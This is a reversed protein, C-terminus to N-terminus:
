YALCESAQRFDGALRALDLRALYRDIQQLGRVVQDRGDDRQMKLEIGLM